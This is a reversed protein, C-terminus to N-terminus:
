QDSRDSSPRQGAAPLTVPHNLLLYTGGPACPTILAKTKAEAGATRKEGRGSAGSGASRAGLRRVRRAGRVAAGASALLRPRHHQGEEFLQAASLSAAERFTERNLEDVRLYLTNETVMGLMVGDCFVGSKGFMRRLTVHGLPALHERLFEAFADSAVM